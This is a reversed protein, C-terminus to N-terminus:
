SLYGTKYRPGGILTGRDLDQNFNCCVIEPLYSCANCAGNEDIMCAPDQPCEEALEKLRGLWFSLGTSFAEELGGCNISSTSYLIIKANVPDILEGFSQIDLGTYDDAVQILLHSFTHLLTFVHKRANSDKNIIEAYDLPEDADIRIDKIISNCELWELLKKKDFKFSICESPYDRVMIIHKNGVYHPVFIIKKKRTSGEIWGMLAQVMRINSIHSIDILGYREKFAELDKPFFGLNILKTVKPISPDNEAGPVDLYSDEDFEIGLDTDKTQELLESIIGIGNKDKVKQNQPEAKLTVAVTQVIRCLLRNWDATTWSNRRDADLDLDDLHNDIGRLTWFAGNMKLGEIVSPLTLHTEPIAGGFVVNFDDSFQKVGSAKADDDPYIDIRTNVVAHRISGARAPVGRFRDDHNSPIVGDHNCQYFVLREISGCKKCKVRYTSIDGRKDWKLIVKSREAGCKKCGKNLNTAKHLPLVKGCIDCYAVFTLQDWHEFDNHGCTKGKDILFFEHCNDKTCLAERPYLSYEGSFDREKAFEGEYLAIVKVETNGPHASVNSPNECKSLYRNLIRLYHPLLKNSNFRLTAERDPNNTDIEFLLKNLSFFQRPHGQYFVSSEPIRKVETPKM